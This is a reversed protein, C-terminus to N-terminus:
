SKAIAIYSGNTKEKKNLFLRPKVVIYSAFNNNTFNNHNFQLKQKMQIATSTSRTAVEKANSHPRNWM